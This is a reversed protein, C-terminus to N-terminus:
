SGGDLSRSLLRRRGHNPVESRFTLGNFQVRLGFKKVSWNLKDCNKRLYEGHETPIRGEWVVRDGQQKTNNAVMQHVWISFKRQLPDTDDLGEIEVGAEEALLKRNQLRRAPAQFTLGNVARGTYLDLHMPVGCGGASSGSVPCVCLPNKQNLMMLMALCPSSKSHHQKQMVEACHNDEYDKLKKGCACLASNYASYGKRLQFTGTTDDVILEVNSANRLAFVINDILKEREFTTSQEVTMGSSKPGCQTAHCLQRLDETPSDRLRNTIQPPVLNKKPVSMNINKKVQFIASTATNRAEKRERESASEATKVATKEKEEAEKQRHDRKRAEERIANETAKAQEEKTKEEKTKEEKAKEKKTKEEKAKEEKTKEEKKVREEKSAKAKEEKAKEEKTKEEKTKEEKAKEKKTKEEKAKEEKAKEEARITKAEEECEKRISNAIESIGGYHVEQFRLNSNSHSRSMWKRTICEQILEQETKTPTPTPTSTSTPASSSVVTPGQGDASGEASGSEGDGGQTPIATTVTPSGQGGPSGSGSSGIQEGM